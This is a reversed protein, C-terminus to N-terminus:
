RRKVTCCYYGLGLIVAAWFAYLGERLGPPTYTIEVSHKGEPLEICLFTDLAKGYGTREGDVLVTYGRDYPITTFLIQEGDANIEGAVRGSSFEKILLQNKGLRELAKGYAEERLEYLWVGNYADCEGEIRITHQEGEHFRGLPIGAKCFWMYGMQHLYRAEGDVYVTFTRDNGEENTFDDIEGSFYMYLVNDSPATFELLYADKGEDSEKTGFAFSVERFIETDEAGLAEALSNQNRFVDGSEEELTLKQKDVMYGLSLANPNEYLILERGRYKNGAKKEYFGTPDSTDIRYRIGLLSELFPTAGQATTRISYDLCGMQRLFINVTENYCSSFYTMGNIGYMFPDNASYLWDSGGVRYFQTDKRLEEALPGYERVTMDYAERISYRSEKHIGGIIVSGNLFLEACTYFLGITFLLSMYNKRLDLELFAHYAMMLLVTSFLFAYRYPFGVPYHFGHWFFDVEPICFGLFLFLAMLLYCAKRRASGKRVLFVIALILMMSGCFISPLGGAGLTEYQQPLFKKWLQIVAFQYAEPQPHETLQRKGVSLNLVAPLLLPAALGVALITCVGFRLLVALYRKVTQGSVLMFVRCLIYAAAFIGVMYSMYYNCYFVATISLLYLLGGKGELLKEIGLLILPTLIVADTWMLCMGYIVNYSMLAYCCAFVVNYWYNRGKAPGFRLFICFSLGCLGTKLLTLIYIADPMSELDFLVTIWNLPCALYYAFTGMFNGGLSVNWSYFLAGPDELIYRLGAMLPMYQARLDYVLPTLVGGLTIGKAGWIWAMLFVPVFFSLLVVAIDKRGAPSLRFKLKSGERDNDTESIKGSTNKFKEVIIKEQVVKNRRTVLWVAMCAGRVSKSQFHLSLRRSVVPTWM